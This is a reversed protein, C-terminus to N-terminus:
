AREAFRVPSALFRNRLLAIWDGLVSNSKAAAAPAASLADSHSRTGAARTAIKTASEAAMAGLARERLYASVTMGARKACEQLHREEAQSLRVSVRQEKARRTKTTAPKTEVSRALVERFEPSRRARAKKVAAAVRTELKRRSGRGSAKAPNRKVAKKAAGAAARAMPATEKAAVPRKKAQKRATKATMATEVTEAGAGDAANGRAVSAPTQASAAVPCPLAGGGGAEAKAASNQAEPQKAAVGDAPRRVRTVRRSQVQRLAEEYPIERVGESPKHGNGNAPGTHKGSWTQFRNLISHLDETSNTEPQM